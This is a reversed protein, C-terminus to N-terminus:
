LELPPMGFVRLFNGSLILRMEETTFGAAQMGGAFAELHRKVYGPFQPGDSGYIVRDAIGAAKIRQLFDPLVEAARRAGLAGPELYVNPYRQALDICHDVYTLKKRYSDWGAHGLIFITDPYRRIAEELYYPDTYPPETRTGPNPSTATHLYVPKGLRGALEYVPYIREDDFRIQQHAHALKIGIMNDFQTLAKELAALQQPGDLNWQDVRISAFGHLRQPNTAVLEAVFENPALGTTHPSYLAFVGAKSIGAADMQSLIAGGSLMWNAFPGMLWKFGRPLREALRQQFRPPMMEWRGTHLHIDVVPLRETGALVGPPPDSCGALQVSALLLCLIKLRRPM